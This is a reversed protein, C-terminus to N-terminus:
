VFLNIISVLSVFIFASQLWCLFKSLGEQIFRKKALLEFLKLLQKVKSVPIDSKWLAITVTVVNFTLRSLNCGSLYLDLRSPNLVFIISSKGFSGGM